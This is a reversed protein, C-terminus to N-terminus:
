TRCNASLQLSTVYKVTQITHGIYSSDSYRNIVSLYITKVTEKINCFKSFVTTLNQVRRKNLIERLRGRVIFGLPGLRLGLPLDAVKKASM